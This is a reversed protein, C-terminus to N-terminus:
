VSVHGSHVAVVNVLKFVEVMVIHITFKERVSQFHDRALLRGWATTMGHVVMLSAGQNTQTIHHYTQIYERADTGRTQRVHQSMVTIIRAINHVRLGTVLHNLMANTSMQNAVVIRRWLVVDHMTVIRLIATTIVVFLRLASIAGSIHNRKAHQNIAVMARVLLSVKVVRSCVVLHARRTSFISLMM